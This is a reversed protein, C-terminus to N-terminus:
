NHLPSERDSISFSQLSKNCSVFQKNSMTSQEQPSIDQYLHLYISFFKVSPDILRIKAWANPRKSDYYLFCMKKILVPQQNCCYFLYGSVRTPM